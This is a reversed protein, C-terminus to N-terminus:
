NGMVAKRSILIRCSKFCSFTTLKNSIQLVLPLSHGVAMKAQSTVLESFAGYCVITHFASIFYRGAVSNAWVKGMKYKM